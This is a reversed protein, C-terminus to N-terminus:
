DKGKGIGISMRFNWWGFAIRYRYPRWFYSIPYQAEMDLIGISPIFMYDHSRKGFEVRKM